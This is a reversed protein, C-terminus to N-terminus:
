ANSRKKSLALDRDSPVLQLTTHRISREWVFFCFHNKPFSITQTRKIISKRKINSCHREETKFLKHVTVNNKQVALPAFHNASKPRITKGPHRSNNASLNITAINAIFQVSILNYVFYRWYQILECNTM